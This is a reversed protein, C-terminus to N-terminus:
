VFLCQETPDIMKYLLISLEPDPFDQSADQWLHAGLLLLITASYKLQLM